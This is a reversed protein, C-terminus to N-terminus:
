IETYVWIFNNNSKGAIIVSGSNREFYQRAYYTLYEKVPKNSPDHYVKDVPAIIYRKKNGYIFPFVYYKAKKPNSLYGNALYYPVLKSFTANIGERKLYDGIGSIRGSIATLINLDKKNYHWIINRTSISNYKSRRLTIWYMASYRIREYVIIDRSSQRFFIYSNVVLKARLLAEEDSIPTVIEKDLVPLVIYKLGEPTNIDIRIFKRPIYVDPERSSPYPYGTNLFRFARLMDGRYDDGSTNSSLDDFVDDGLIRETFYPRVSFILSNYSKGDINYTLDLKKKIYPKGFYVSRGSRDIYYRRQPGAITNRRELLNARADPNGQEVASGSGVSASFLINVFLFYVVVISLRM